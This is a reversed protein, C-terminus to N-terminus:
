ACSLRGDPAFALAFPNRLGWAVLIPTPSSPSSSSPPPPTSSPAPDRKASAYQTKDKAMRWRGDEIKANKNERLPIKLIAGNCPMQGKVVHGPQTATGFPVF